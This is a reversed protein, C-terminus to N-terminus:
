ALLQLQSRRPGPAPALKQQRPSHGEVSSAQVTSSSVMSASTSSRTMNAITKMVMQSISQTLELTEPANIVLSKLSNPGEVSFTGEESVRQFLQSMAPTVKLVAQRLGGVLNHVGVLNQLAQQWTTTTDSLHV